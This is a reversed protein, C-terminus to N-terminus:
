GFVENEWRVDKNRTMALFSLRDSVAAVTQCAARGRVKRCKREWVVIIIEEAFDRVKDILLM